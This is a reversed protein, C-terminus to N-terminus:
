TIKQQWIQYYTGTLKEIIWVQIEPQQLNDRFMILDQLGMAM